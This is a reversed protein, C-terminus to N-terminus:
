YDLFYGIETVAHYLVNAQPGERAPIIHEVGAPPM